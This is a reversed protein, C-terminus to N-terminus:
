RSQLTTSAAKVARIRRREYAFAGITATINTLIIILFVIESFYSISVGRSLPVSALVAAVLGRPLMTALIAEDCKLSKNKLSILKVLMFRALLIVALVALSINLVNINFASMNFIIGIYVFFFTRVFFAAEKQFSKITADLSVVGDLRLLEWLYRVNGLILGFVFVSIAGNGRLFEVISYMIFIVAITLLYGFPKGHFRKLVGIWLVSSVLAIVIAVSFTGTLSGLSDRVNIQNFLMMEIIALSVVICLADNIASELDLIIKSAESVSIRSVTSIVIASSTGGVTAGLLLGQFFGWGFAYHMLNMVFFCTFIFVTLTFFSAEGLEKMVKVLNLNLGGDFLIMMLALAGVYPAMESFLSVQRESLVSGLALGVFMLILVDPIKTREFFLMSFFGVFIIVGILLFVAEIM